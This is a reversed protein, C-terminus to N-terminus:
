PRGLTFDLNPKSSSLTESLCSSNLDSYMEMSKSQMEKKFSQESGTTSECPIGTSCGGRSSSSNSWLGIHNAPKGYQTCLNPNDQLNDDCIEGTSGNEFGDSQGSSVAPKDTNKVTRYMQLHSKVHALTLDKVDMLELVSKPTAREHGGLLEVAHVFRAHLTTTWRMRPARMSRRAAAQPFRTSPPFYRSRSLGQTATATGAFPTFNSTPSSYDYLHQQQQQQQQQQHHHHLPLLPFSSPTPHHYVPIGRIPKLLSLDHHHHHFHLHHHHHPHLLQLSSRRSISGAPDDTATNTPSLSALSLGFGPDADVAPTTSATCPSTIRKSNTSSPRRWFGLETNSEEDVVVDPKRYGSARTSNPPSIQLSLDSQAPFLEM